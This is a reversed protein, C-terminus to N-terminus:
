GGTGGFSDAQFGGSLTFRLMSEPSPLFDRQLGLGPVTSRCKCDDCGPDKFQHALEAHAIGRDGPQGAQALGLHLTQTLVCRISARRSGWGRGGGAAAM